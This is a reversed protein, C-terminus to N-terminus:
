DGPREEAEATPGLGILALCTRELGDNELVQDAAWDSFDLVPCPDLGARSAASLVNALLVGAEMLVTRLGRPGLLIQTRHPVVSLALVARCTAFRVARDDPVCAVLDDLVPTPRRRELVVRGLRPPVLFVECGLILSLDVNFLSDAMPQDPGFMSLLSALDAGFRSALDELSVEPPASGPPVVDPAFARRSSLFWERLEAVDEASPLYRLEGPRIQTNLLFQEAPDGGADGFRALYRERHSPDLVRVHPSPLITQEAGVEATPGGPVDRDADAM